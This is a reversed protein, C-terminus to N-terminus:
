RQNVIFFTNYSINVYNFVALSGGGTEYGRRLCKQLKNFNLKLLSTLAENSHNELKRINRVQYM